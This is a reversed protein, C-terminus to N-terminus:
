SMIREYSSHYMWYGIPEEDSAYVIIYMLGFTFNYLEIFELIEPIILALDKCSHYFFSSCITHM